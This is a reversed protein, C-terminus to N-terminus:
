NNKFFTKLFVLDELIYVDDLSYARSTIKEELNSILNYFYQNTNYVQLNKCIEVLNDVNEKLIGFEIMEDISKLINKMEDINKLLMQMLM